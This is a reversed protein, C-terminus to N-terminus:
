THHIASRVSDAITTEAANIEFSMIRKGHVVLLDLPEQLLKAVTEYPMGLTAGVKVALTHVLEYCHGSQQAHELERLAMVQVVRREDLQLPGVGSAIVFQVNFQEGYKPHQKIAGVVILDDGEDVERPLTGICKLWEGSELRHGFLMGGTSPFRQFVKDVRLERISPNSKPKSPM